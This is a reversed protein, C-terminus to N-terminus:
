PERMEGDSCFRMEDTPKNWYGCWGFHTIEGEVSHHRCDKCRVVELLDDRKKEAFGIGYEELQSLAIDREWKYVDALSPPVAKNLETKLAEIAMDLAETVGSTYGCLVGHADRTSLIQIAEERTM